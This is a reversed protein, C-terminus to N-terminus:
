LKHVSKKIFFTVGGSFFYHDMGLILCLAFYFTVFGALSKNIFHKQM